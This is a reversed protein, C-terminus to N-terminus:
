LKNDGDFLIAKSTLIVVESAALTLIVQLSINANCDEEQLGSSSHKEEEMSQLELLNDKSLNM